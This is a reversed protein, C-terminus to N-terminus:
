FCVRSYKAAKFCFFCCSFCSSALVHSSNWLDSDVTVKDSETFHYAFRKRILHRLIM